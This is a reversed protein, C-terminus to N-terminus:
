ASATALDDPEAERLERATGYAVLLMAVLESGYDDVLRIFEQLDSTTLAPRRRGAGGKLQEERRANESNYSAAFDCLVAVFQDRFRAKRRLEQVLGYHVDFVDQGKAKMYQENVTARRVAAAVNRFAESELIPTLRKDM